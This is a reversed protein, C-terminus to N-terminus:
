PRKGGGDELFLLNKDAMGPRVAVETPATGEVFFEQRGPAGEAARLGSQPDIAVVEVGPPMPFDLRPRKALVERMLGLWIPLAARGGTMSQGMSAHDDLGVWVTAVLDPTFASFWADRGDSTTGTKGAVPRRLVGVAHGTGRDHEVVSRMMSTLVYAVAPPLTEEPVAHRSVPLGHAVREAHEEM